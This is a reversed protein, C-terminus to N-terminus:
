EHDWEIVPQSPGLGFGGMYICNTNEIWTIRWDAAHDLSEEVDGSTAPTCKAKDRVWIEGNSEDPNPEISVKSAGALVQGAPLETDFSVAAPALNLERNPLSAGAASHGKTSGPRDVKVPVLGTAAWAAGIM